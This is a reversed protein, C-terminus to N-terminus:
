GSRARDHSRSVCPRRTALDRESVEKLAKQFLANGAFQENVVKIYKDHLALLEKVFDPDQNTEQLPPSPHHQHHDHCRYYHLHNTSGLFNRGQSVKTEGEVRAERRNIIEGGM